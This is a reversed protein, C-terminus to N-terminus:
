RLVCGLMDVGDHLRPFAPAQLQGPACVRPALAAALDLLGATAAASSLPVGEVVDLDLPHLPLMRPLAAPLYHDAPLRLVAHDTGGWARGLARALGLRRRWEPGLSADLPARPLTTALTSLAAHLDMGLADLDGGAFVATPAMCGRSDYAASDLALAHALRQREEADEPVEVLAVSVRHGFCTLRADPWAGRLQAGTADDGFVVLADLGSLDRDTTATVPLGEAALADALALCADPAASPAKLHVRLGATAYLAAWEFPSTFVGQAVVIGVSDVRDRAPQAAAAESLAEVTLPGLALALSHAVMTPHLDPALASPPLAPLRDLARRVARARLVERPPRM